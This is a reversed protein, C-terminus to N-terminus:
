RCAVRWADLDWRKILTDFGMRNATPCVRDALGADGYEVHFVAKGARIFAQLRDCENWQMCEENLAWDFLDVVVDVHDLTNKMGISLDRAHAEAALWRLYDLADQRTLGLGDGNEYGDTNDPEVGDCRKQQALDLRAQMIARVAPARVDIWREGPWDGLPNGITAAPFAAADPRWDEHSGASFYCIVFRGDAHLADIIAEPTDFLDVDYMQVDLSRDIPGTLQWQWTTGPAPRWLSPPPPAADVAAFDRPAADHPGPDIPTADDAAADIIPAADVSLAADLRAVDFTADPRTADTIPPSSDSLRADAAHGPSGAPQEFCAFLVLPWAILLARGSM